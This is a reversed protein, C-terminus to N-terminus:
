SCARTMDERALKGLTRWQPGHARWQSPLCVLRKRRMAAPKEEKDWKAPEGRSIKALTAAFKARAKRIDTMDGRAGSAVNYLSPLDISPWWDPPAHSAEQKEANPNARNVPQAPVYPAFVKARRADIGLRQNRRKARTSM